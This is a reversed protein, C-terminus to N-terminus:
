KYENYGIQRFDEQAKLCNEFKDKSDDDEFYFVSGSDYLLYKKESRKYSRDTIRYEQTNMVSSQMFRFPLLSTIAFKVHRMASRPIFAPSQLTLM